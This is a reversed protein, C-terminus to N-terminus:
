GSLIWSVRGDIGESRIADRKVEQVRPNVDLQRSGVDWRKMEEDTKKGLDHLLDLDCAHSCFRQGEDQGGGEKRRPTISGGNRVVIILGDQM